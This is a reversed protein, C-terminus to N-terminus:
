GNLQVSNHGTATPFRTPSRNIVWRIKGSPSPQIEAVSEFQVVVGYGFATAFSRRLAALNEELGDSGMPVFRFILQGRDWQELQWERILQRNLSVGVLHRVFVSTLRTGDETTLM